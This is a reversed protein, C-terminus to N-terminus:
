QTMGCWTLVSETEVIRSFTSFVKQELYEFKPTAAGFHRDRGGFYNYYQYIIIYWLSKDIIYNDDRVKWFLKYFHSWFRNMIAFTSLHGISPM